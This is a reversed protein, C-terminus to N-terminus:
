QVIFNDFGVYDNQGNQKIRLRLGITSTGSPISLVITGEGNKELDDRPEVVGDVILNYYVEDDSDFGVIDYDFSVQTQNRLIPVSEFELTLYGATGDGDEDELDRIGLFNGSFTPNDINTLPSGNTIGFFGDAGDNFFEVDKTYRWTTKDDFNQIFDYDNDYIIVQHSHIDGILPNETASSVQAIYFTTFEDGEVDNDDIASLSFTASTAGATITVLQQYDSTFDTTEFAAGNDNKILVLNIDETTPNSVEITISVTEGENMETQETSFQVTTETSSASGTCIYDGLYDLTDLSYSDWQDVDYTTTPQADSKRVLTIDKGFNDNDGITGVIDIDAGGVSALSIADNGNFTMVNSTTSTVTGTYLVAGDNAYVINEGNVLTGSLPFSSPPNDPPTDTGNYHRLEYLSLDVDVGTGNFIEIYKNNSSGEVYESIILDSKCTTPTSEIQVWDSCKEEGFLDGDSPTVCAQIYRGGADNPITQSLDTGLTYQGLGNPLIALNWEYTSGSEVQNMEPNDIDSWSYIPTLTSTPQLLGIIYVDSDIEPARNIIDCPDGLAVWSGNQYGRLCKRDSDFFILGNVPNEPTDTLRPLLLGKQSSSVELAASSSPPEVNDNDSILVQAQTIMNSCILGILLLKKMSKLKLGFFAAFKILYLM